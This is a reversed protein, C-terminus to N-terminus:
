RQRRDFNGASAFPDAKQQKMNTQLTQETSERAIPSLRVSRINFADNSNRPFNLSDNHKFNLMSQQSWKNVTSLKMSEYLRNRRKKSLKEKHWHKITNNPLQEWFM